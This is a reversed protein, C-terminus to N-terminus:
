KYLSNVNKGSKGSIGAGDRRRLLPSASQTAKNMKTAPTSSSQKLNTSTKTSKAINLSPEAKKARTYEVNSKISVKPKSADKIMEQSKSLKIKENRSAM